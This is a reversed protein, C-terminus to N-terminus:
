NRWLQLSLIKVQHEEKVNGETLKKMNFQEVIFKPASNKHVSLTERVEAVVLCHDNDCEAGKFYKVVM